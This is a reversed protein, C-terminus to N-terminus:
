DKESRKIDDIAKKFTRKLTKKLTKPFAKELASRFAKELARRFKILFQEKIEEDKQIEALTCFIEFLQEIPSNIKKSNKDHDYYLTLPHRNFFDQHEELPKELLQEIPYDIKKSNNDHDYYLTLPQKKFYEQLKDLCKELLKEFFPNLKELSPNLKEWFPNLNEWFPNLEELFRNLKERLEDKFEDEFTDKYTDKFAEEFEDKFTDEFTGKFEDKFADKSAIFLFQQWTSQTFRDEPNLYQEDPTVDYLNRQKENDNDNLMEDLSVPEDLRKQLLKRISDINQNPYLEKINPQKLFEYLQDEMDNTKWWQMGGKKDEDLYSIIRALHKKMKRIDNKNYPKNTIKITVKNDRETDSEADISKNIELIRSELQKFFIKLDRPVGNGKDGKPISELIERELESFRNHKKELKMELKKRELHKKELKMKELKMKELKMEELIMGLKKMKFNNEEVEKNMIKKGKNILHEVSNNRLDNDNYNLPDNDDKSHYNLAFGLLNYQRRAYYTFAKYINPIDDQMKHGVIESFDWLEWVYTGEKYKIVELFKNPVVEENAFRNKPNIKKIFINNQEDIFFKIVDVRGKDWHSLERPFLFAYNECDKDENKKSMAIINLTWKKGGQDPPVCHKAISLLWKSQEKDFYTEINDLLWKGEEKDFYTEIYSNDVKKEFHYFRLGPFYDKLLEILEKASIPKNDIRENPKL